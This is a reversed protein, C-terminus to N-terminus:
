GSHKKNRRVAKGRRSDYEKIWDNYKREIRIKVVKEVTM